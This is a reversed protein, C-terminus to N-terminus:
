RQPEPAGSQRLDPSGAAISDPGQQASDPLKSESEPSVSRLYDEGCLRGKLEAYVLM